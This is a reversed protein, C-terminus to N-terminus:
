KYHKSQPSTVKLAGKKGAPTKSRFINPLQILEQDNGEKRNVTTYKKVWCHKQVCGYIFTKTKNKKNKQKTKKKQKKKNKTKKKDISALM